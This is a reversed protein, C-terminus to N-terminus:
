GQELKDYWNRKLIYTTVIAVGLAIWMSTWQFVIIFVPILVLSTQWVIGVAVNGLDRAAGANKRFQPDDRVVKDHIPQWFGWPRVQKYFKILTAEDDPKTLLSVGVSALVSVALILPFSNVTSIDPDNVLGLPEGVGTGTLFRDDKGLMAARRYEEALYSTVDFAADAAWNRSLKTFLQATYVNLAMQEFVPETETVAAPNEAVMAFRVNSSYMTADTSTAKVRPIEVRDRNTTVVTALDEVVAVGPIRTILRAMFDAPVLYGGATDTGESLAKGDYPQGRLYANFAAKYEPTLTAKLAPSRDAAETRWLPVFAGGEVTVGTFGDKTGVGPLVKAADTPPTGLGPLAGASERAWATHDELRRKTEAEAVVAELSAKVQDAEDLLRDVEAAKDAPMEKDKHEDRLSRVKALLAAHKENLEGVTPM